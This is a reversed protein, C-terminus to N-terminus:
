YLMLSDKFGSLIFEVCDFLFYLFECIEFKAEFGGEFFV